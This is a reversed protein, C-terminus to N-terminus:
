RIEPDLNAYGNAYRDRHAGLYASCDNPDPEANPNVNASRAYLYRDGYSNRYENRYTAAHTNIHCYVNDHCNSCANFDSPQRASSGARRRPILACGM